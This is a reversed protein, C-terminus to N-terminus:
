SKKKLIPLVQTGVRHMVPSAAKWLLRFPTTVSKDINLSICAIVEEGDKVPIAFIARFAETTARFRDLSLGLTVDPSLRQWTQSSCKKYQTSHLDVKITADKQWCLGVAGEGQKWHPVPSPTAHSLRARVYRRMVPDPTSDDRQWAHMGVDCVPVNATDAFEAIAFNLMERVTEKQEHLHLQSLRNTNSAIAAQLRKELPDDLSLPPPILSIDRAIEAVLLYAEHELNLANYDAYPRPIRSILLGSYYVPIVARGLIWAAGAEIHVWQRRLSEESLMVVVIDANTLETKIRELWNEGAKTQYRDDSLFCYVDKGFQTDIIDKLAAAIEKEEHIHSLFVRKKPPM